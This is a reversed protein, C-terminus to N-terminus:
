SFLDLEPASALEILQEVTLPLDQRTPQLEDGSIAEGPATPPTVGNSASASAVTDGRYVHVEVHRYGSAGSTDLITVTDSNPGTRVTCSGACNATADAASEYAPAAGFGIEGAGQEDVVVAGATIYPPATDAPREPDFIRGPYAQLPMIDGPSSSSRYYTVDPLLPPVAAALYCSIRAAAHDAPEAPIRIPYNNKENVVTTPKVLPSTPEASAIRCYPAADLTSWGPGAVAYPPPAPTLDASRHPLALSVGGVAVAAVAAAAGAVAFRRRRRARRGGALVEDYTFSLPPEAGTYAVLADHIDTEPHDPM